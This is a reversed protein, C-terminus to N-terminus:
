IIWNGSRQNVLDGQNILSLHQVTGAPPIFTIGIGLDRFKLEADIIRKVKGTTMPRRRRDRVPTM